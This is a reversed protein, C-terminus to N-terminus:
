HFHIMYKSETPWFNGLNTSFRQGKFCTKLDLGTYNFLITLPKVSWTKLVLSDMFPSNADLSAKILFLLPFGEFFSLPALFLEKIFNLFMRDCLFSLM